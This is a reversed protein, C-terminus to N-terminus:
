DSHLAPLDYGLFGTMDILYRYMEEEQQYMKTLNYVSTLRGQDIWAQLERAVREM